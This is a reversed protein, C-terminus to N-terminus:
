CHGLVSGNFYVNAFLVADANKVEAAAQGNAIGAILEGGSESGDKLLSGALDDDIKVAYRLDVAGADGRQDAHGNGEAAFTAHEMEDTFGAADKIGEGYGAEDFGDGGEVGEGLGGFKRRLKGGTDAFPRPRYTMGRSALFGGERLPRGEKRGRKKQEPQNIEESAEGATGIPPPESEM